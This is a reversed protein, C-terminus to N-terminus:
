AAGAQSLIRAIAAAREATTPVEALELPGGGAGTIESKTTESFEGDGCRALYRDAAKWDGDLAANRIVRVMSTKAEARARQVAGNFEPDDAVWEYLTSEAVDQALAAHKAYAGNRVSEVIAAKVEPTQKSIAM